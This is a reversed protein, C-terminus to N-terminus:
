FLISNLTVLLCGPALEIVDDVHTIQFMASMGNKLDLVKIKEGVKFGQGKELLISNQKLNILSMFRQSNVEVEHNM